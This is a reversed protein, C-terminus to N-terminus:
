SLLARHIQSMQIPDYIIFFFVIKPGILFELNMSGITLDTVDSM